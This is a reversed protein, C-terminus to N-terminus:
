AARSLTAEPKRLGLRMALPIGHLRLGMGAGTLRAVEGGFRWEAGSLSDTVRLEVPSGIPLVAGTEIFMGDASVDTMTGPLQPESTHAAFSVALSVPARWGQRREIPMPSDDPRSAFFTELLELRAADEPSLICGLRNRKGSLTRIEAVRQIWAMSNRETMPGSTPSICATYRNGKYVGRLDTVNRNGTTPKM